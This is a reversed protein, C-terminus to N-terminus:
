PVVDVTVSRVMATDHSVVGAIRLARVRVEAQGVRAALWMGNSLPRVVGRQRFPGWLPAVNAIVAGAADRGSVRMVALPAITDGVRIRLRSPVVHIVRVPQNRAELSAVGSMYAVWADPRFGAAAEQQSPDISISGADAVVPRGASACAAAALAVCCMAGRVVRTM